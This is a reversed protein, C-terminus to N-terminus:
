QLKLQTHFAEVLEGNSLQAYIHITNKSDAYPQVLDTLLAGTLSCHQKRPDTPIHPTYSVLVAGEPDKVEVSVTCVNYNAYLVSFIKSAPIDAGNEIPDTELGIWAKGPEVPDEGLFEKLTFPIYGKQLLQEFTYKKDITGLPRMTKGNDQTYNKDETRTGGSGQEHTHVYSQAPDITGDSRRVVVPKQSIMRVHYASSSFIGDAVDMMAYSELITEEGNAEIIKDSMERSRPNYGYTYPQYEYPGVPVIGSEYMTYSHMDTIGHSNSVRNWGQMAGYSCASSIINLTNSGMAEIDLAGTEPDWYPLMKWANGFTAGDIGTAYCLGSYAIGTPLSVDYSKTLLTYKYEIPQNPTWPITMSLRFADVCLQRLEQETMTENAIPLNRFEEYWAQTDAVIGWYESYDKKTSDPETSEPQQKAHCATLLLLMGLFLCLIKRMM